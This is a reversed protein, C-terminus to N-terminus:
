LGRAQAPGSEADAESVQERYGYFVRPVEHPLPLVPPWPPESLELTWRFRYPLGVIFEVGAVEGATLVYGLERERTDDRPTFGRFRQYPPSELYTLRLQGPSVIEWRCNVRAYSTQGYGYILEGSGDETLWLSRLSSYNWPTASWVGRGGALVATDSATDGM